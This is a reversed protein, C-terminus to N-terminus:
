LVRCGYEQKSLFALHKQYSARNAKVVPADVVSSKEALPGGVKCWASGWSQDVHPSYSWIVKFQDVHLYHANRHRCKWILEAYAEMGFYSYSKESNSFVM